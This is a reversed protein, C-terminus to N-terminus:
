SIDSGFIRVLLQKTVHQQKQSTKRVTLLKRRQAMNAHMDKGM